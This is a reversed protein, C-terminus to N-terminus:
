SRRTFSRPLIKIHFRCEHAASATEDAMVQNAIQLPFAKPHAANIHLIRFEAGRIRVIKHDGIEAIMRDPQCHEILGKVAYILQRRVHAPRPVNEGSRMVGRHHVVGRADVNIQQLADVIGPGPANEIRRRGADIRLVILGIGVVGKQGLVSGIRRIRVALVAPLFQEALAQVQSKGPIVTEIDANRAEM